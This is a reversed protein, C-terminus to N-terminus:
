ETEKCPKVLKLMQTGLIAVGSFVFDFEPNAL